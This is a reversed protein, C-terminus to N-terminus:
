GGFHSLLGLYSQVRVSQKGSDSDPNFLRNKFNGAIRRGAVVRNPYIYMGLFAFGKDAPQLKIKRPHLTLRLDNSLFERIRSVASLLVSKDRHILLM